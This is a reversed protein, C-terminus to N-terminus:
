KPPSTATTSLPVSEMQQGLLPAAFNVFNAEDELVWSSHEPNRAVKAFDSPGRTTIHMWGDVDSPQWRDTAMASSLDHNVLFLEYGIPVPAARLESVARPAHVQSWHEGFQQPTLDARRQAGLLLLNPGTPELCTVVDGVSITVAGVQTPLELSQMVRILGIECDESYDIQIAAAVPVFEQQRNPDPRYGGTSQFAEVSVQDLGASAVAARIRAAAPAVVNVDNDRQFVLLARRREATTETDAVREIGTM